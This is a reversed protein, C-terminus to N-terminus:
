KSKSDCADKLIKIMEKEHIDCTNNKWTATDVTKKSMIRLKLSGNAIISKNTTFEKKDRPALNSFKSNVSRSVLCLNGFRDKDEWPPFTGKSPNQPYWHEISNRFKFVFNDFDLDKYKDGRNKWLLYDLYNFVVHPTGIGQRYDEKDLWKKVDKLLRSETYNELELLERQTDESYQRQIKNYLWGLIDTLWQMSKQSHYSVRLCSQLMLNNKTRGEWPKGRKNKDEEVKFWTSNFQAKKQSGKGYSKLEKLSWEGNDNDLDEEVIEDKTYERKIIYRDFIFRCKLLCFIFGKAFQRKLKDDNNSYQKIAREFSEVLKNDDLTYKNDSYINLVHLLFHPFDVISKFRIRNKKKEKENFDESSNEFKNLIDVITLKKDENNKHKLDNHTENFADLIEDFSSYALWSWNDGFLIARHLADFNMQVYGTMDVCADWIEVFVNRKDEEVVSFLKEKLIDQQELQEGRVNMIEFYRNLDTHEPVEIIYLRVNKLKEKFNCKIEDITEIAYKGDSKKIENHIQLFANKISEIGALLVHKNKEDKEEFLCASAYGKKYLYNLINDYKKRCEYSLCGEKVYCGIEESSYLEIMLLYLVTLRQQGDIVEYRGDIMKKVILSGLYYQEKASNIDEILQFIEEHSWAFARQYVPIFFSKQTFITQINGEEKIISVEEIDNSVSM